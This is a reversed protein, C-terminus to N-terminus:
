SLIAKMLTSGMQTGDTLDLQRLELFVPTKTRDSLASILIHRMVMTKGSGGSGTLIAFRSVSAIEAAGPSALVRRQTRLDLPVFFDYLPIPESRVFFSKAKSHRELLRSVYTTYTREFKSRILNRAGKLQGAGIAFAKDLNAQIFEVVIKNSDLADTMAVKPSPYNNRDLPQGSVQPRARLRGHGTDVGTAQM